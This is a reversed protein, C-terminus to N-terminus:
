GPGLESKITKIFEKLPMINAVEYIDYYRKNLDKCVRNAIDEERYLGYIHYPKEKTRIVYKTEELADWPSIYKTTYDM